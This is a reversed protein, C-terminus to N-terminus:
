VSSPKMELESQSEDSEEAIVALDALTWDGANAEEARRLEECFLRLSGKENSGAITSAELVGNSARWIDLARIRDAPRALQYAESVADTERPAVVGADELLALGKQVSKVSVDLSEALEAVPVAAGRERFAREIEMALELGITERMETERLSDELYSDFSRFNQAVFALGAGLLVIVWSIYIWTFLLPLAAFGGFLASYKAGGVNLGVYLAQAAHFLVAAFIGGTLAPLIRVRTNPLILYLFSFSVCTFLVPLHPLGMDYLERFLPVEYLRSVLADSRLTTALSLSVALLLPATILVALYDAFRRVWTRSKRIGWIQNFAKEVNGIALITTLFAVGGGLSGLGSFNARNVIGVIQDVVEPSGVLFRSVILRALGESKGVINVISLALALIPVLSLLTVYTLAGARLLIQDHMAEAYVHKALLLLHDKAKPNL